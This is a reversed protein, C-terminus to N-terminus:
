INTSNRHLKLVEYGVAEFMKRVQRNKGEHIIIEIESKDKENDYCITTVKAPSTVYDEIRIGKRLKELHWLKTVNM